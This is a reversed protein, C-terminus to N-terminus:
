LLILAVISFLNAIFHSITSIWANKTKHFVIGYLISNTFVFFINYTVVAISGATLHGIAFLASSILLVPVIPLAKNLQNQFFARWAIEEGLALVALQLVALIINEVTVFSAARALVYQLFEPLILRALGISVADMVLPLAIWVWITRDQLDTGITRFELGSNRGPQKEIARNIFFAAIGIFISVGAINLGFLNSFSLVAMITMAFLPLKRISQMSAGRKPSQRASFTHQGATGM